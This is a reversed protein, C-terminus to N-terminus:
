YRCGVMGNADRGEGEWGWIDVNSVAHSEDLSEGGYYGFRPMLVMNEMMEERILEPLYMKWTQPEVDVYKAVAKGEKVKNFGDIIGQPSQYGQAGLM